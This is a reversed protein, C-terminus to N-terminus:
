VMEIFILFDMCHYGIMIYIQIRAKSIYKKMDYCMTGDENTAFQKFVETLANKAPQVLPAPTSPLLSVSHNKIKKVNRSNNNYDNVIKIKM